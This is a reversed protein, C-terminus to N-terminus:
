IKIQNDKDTTPSVQTSLLFSPLIYEGGFFFHIKTTKKDDSFSNVTCKILYCRVFSILYNIIKINSTHPNEHEKPFSNVVGLLTQYPKM